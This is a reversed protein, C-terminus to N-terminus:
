DFAEAVVVEVCSLVESMARRKGFREVLTIVRAHPFRAVFERSARKDASGCVVLLAAGVDMM